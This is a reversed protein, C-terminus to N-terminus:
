SFINLLLRNVEGQSCTYIIVSPLATLFFQLKKATYNPYVKKQDKYDRQLSNALSM